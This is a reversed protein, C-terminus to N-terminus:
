FAEHTNLRWFFDEDFYFEELDSKLSFIDIAQDLTPQEM